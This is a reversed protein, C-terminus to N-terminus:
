ASAYVSMVAPVAIFTSNLFYPGLSWGAICFSYSTTDLPLGRM